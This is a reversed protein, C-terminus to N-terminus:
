KGAKKMEDAYFDVYYRKEPILKFQAAVREFIQDHSLKGERLLGRIMSTMDIKRGAKKQIPRTAQTTEPIIVPAPPAPKTLLKASKTILGRRVMDRRYWGPYGQKSRDLGFQHRIIEWIERDGKGALIHERCVSAITVEPAKPEVPEPKAKHHSRKKEPAEVVPDPVIPVPDKFPAELVAELPPVHGNTKKPLKVKRKPKADIEAQAEVTLETVRDLAALKSTYIVVEDNEQHLLGDSFHDLIFFTNPLASSEMVHWRGGMLESVFLEPATQSVHKRTM